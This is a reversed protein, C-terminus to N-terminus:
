LQILLRCRRVSLVTLNTWSPKEEQMNVIHLVVGGPLAAMLLLIMTTNTTIYIDSINKFIICVCYDGFSFYFKESIVMIM